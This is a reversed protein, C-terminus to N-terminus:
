CGRVELLESDEVAHILTEVGSSLTRSRMPRLVIDEDGIELLVKGRLLVLSREIPAASLRGAAGRALTASRAGHTPRDVLSRFDLAPIPRSSPVELSAVPIQTPSEIPEPIPPARDSHIEMRRQATRGAPLNAESVAIPPARDSHIRGAPLNAESVAELQWSREAVKEPPSEASEQPSKEVFAPPSDEEVKQSSNGAPRAPPQGASTEPLRAGPRESPRKDTSATPTAEAGDSGPARALSQVVEKWTRISIGPLTKHLKRADLPPLPVERPLPDNLLRAPERGLKQAIARAVDLRSVPADLPAVHFLGSAGAELLRHLAVGVDYAAVPSVMDQTEAGRSELRRSERELGESLLLGTRLVLTRKSTRLFLTEGRLRSESVVSAPAPSDDESFPGGRRGFVVSSSLLVATAKHKMAAAAVHIATEANLSFARDPDSAGSDGDDLGAAHVVATAGVEDARRIVSRMDTIDTHADVVVARGQDLLGRELGRAVSVARAFILITM